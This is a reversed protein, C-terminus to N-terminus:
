GPPDHQMYEHEQAPEPQQSESTPPPSPPAAPPPAAVPKPVPQSSVAPAPVTTPEGPAGADTGIAAEAANAAIDADQNAQESPSPSCGLLTICGLAVTIRRNPM